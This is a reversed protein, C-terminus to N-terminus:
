KALYKKGDKRVVIGKYDKGVKQGALNYHTTDDDADTVVNEIGTTEEEEFVFELLEKGLTLSAGTADLYCKGAPIAIASNVKYLGPVGNKTGIVFANASATLTRDFLVPRLHNTGTFVAKTDPLSVHYESKASGLMFVPTGAPIVDISSLTVSSKNIKKAVYAKAGSSLVVDTFATYSAWGAGNTKIPCHQSIIAAPDWDLGKAFSQLSAKSIALYTADAAEPEGYVNKYFAFRRTIEANNITTGWYGSVPSITMNTAIFTAAPSAQSHAKWGRALCYTGNQSAAGTVLCNIFVYGNEASEGGYSSPAAISGGKQKNETAIVNLTVSNFLVNGSGCIFDVAGEIKGGEFYAIMGNNGNCYYTDQKGKLYVNKCITKTGCDWLAVGREADIGDTGTGYIADSQLTLNQLYLGTSTNKLTASTKLGENEPSNMIIVGDRSEGIVAINDGKITTNIDSGLDYTGNPLYITVNGTANAESIADKLQAVNGAAVNYTKTAEDYEVGSWEEAFFYPCYKGLDFTLTAPEKGKYIYTVYHDYSSGVNRNDCTSEYTNIVIASGGDVSVTAKDTFKCTGITFKVPCDVSVTLIAGAYGHQNFTGYGEDNFDGEEFTVNAPLIGEEPLLVTYPNSRFDIKFPEFEVVPEPTASTAIQKVSVSYLYASSGVGVVSVYGAEEDAKTAKYTTTNGTADVGGITYHFQGAYSVITVVDGASRVPVKVVTTPNFQVYGASSYVFKGTRADVDLVVGEVDSHVIGENGEYITESTITSPIGSQWDWTVTREPQSAGSASVHQKVVIKKAYGKETVTMTAYGDKVDADTAVYKFTADAKTATKDGISFGIGNSGDPYNYITIEDKNTKVPIQIITTANILVDTGRGQFKGVSADVSLYVGEVDSPVVGNGSSKGEYHVKRIENNDSFDWTCTIVDAWSLGTGMVLLFLTLLTRIRKVMNTQKKLIRLNLNIYM